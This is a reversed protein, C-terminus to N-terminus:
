ECKEGTAVILAGRPLVAPLLREVCRAMRGGSPLFVASRIRLDRVPAGAFLARIEQADHWRAGHYAGHGGDRGKQRYLRSARNLWGIAFRGRTVRVIEHVAKGEDPVFCLAAVSVVADFSGDAFPLAQADGAVWRASLGGRARAFALWDARVDLGLTVAGQGAFRRTFWGTGCGVDLLIAGPRLRLGKALLQFETNGIWRGRETTYWADYADADMLTAKYVAKPGAARIVAGERGALPGRTDRRTPIHHWSASVGTLGDM